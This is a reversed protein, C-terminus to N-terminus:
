APLKLPQRGSAVGSFFMPPPSHTTRNDRLDPWYSYRKTTSPQQISSGWVEWRTALGYPPKLETRRTGNATLVDIRHNCIDEAQPERYGRGPFAKFEFNSVM